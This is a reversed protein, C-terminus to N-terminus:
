ANRDNVILLQQCGIAILHMGETALSNYSLDLYTLTDNVSLSQALDIAGGLRLMNWGLHLKTLRCCQTDRLLDAIAEGGTVIDPMVTNLAEASGLKNYSLDLEKLSQNQKIAEIFRGCEFDDVDASKLLLRELPCAPLVLYHLLATASQPGIENLSLNLELLGPIDRAALILPAM